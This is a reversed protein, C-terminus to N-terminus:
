GAQAIGKIDIWKARRGIVATNEETDIELDPPVPVGLYKAIKPIDNRKPPRGPYQRMKSIQSSHLKLIEALEHVRKGRQRLNNDLWDAFVQRWKEDRPVRPKPM